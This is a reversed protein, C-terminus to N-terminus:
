EDGSGASAKEAALKQKMSELVAMEKEVERKADIYPHGKKRIEEIQADTLVVPKPPDSAKYEVAQTRIVNALAKRKEALVQEQTAVAKELDPLRNKAVEDAAHRKSEPLVSDEAEDTTSQLSHTTGNRDMWEGAVHETGEATRPRVVVVTAILALMGVFLVLVWFRKIM